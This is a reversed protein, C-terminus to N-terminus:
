RAADWVEGRQNWLLLVVIVVLPIWDRVLGLEAVQATAGQVVGLLLGGVLSLEIRKFAGVLAAASAPIVLSSLSMADATQTPAIIMVVVTVVLGTFAWVGLSLGRVPIGILEAAVPRDAVARLRAGLSTRRLVARSGFAVVVALVIMVVTVNSVVVGGVEFATGPVVPRFTMPRTGFAIYSLSLLLLYAAVTVASRAGISAEALWRAMILGLLLSLAVGVAVGVLLALPLPVRQLVLSAALFAGFMGVAAQAFNIVRVLQAMLTMCVAIIAYVGGIALGAIAGQLM